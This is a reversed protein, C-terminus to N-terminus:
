DRLILCPAETYGQEHKMKECDDNLCEDGRQIREGPALLRFRHRVAAELPGASSAPRDSSAEDAGYVTLPRGLMKDHDSIM